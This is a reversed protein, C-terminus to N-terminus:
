WNKIWDRLTYELQDVDVRLDGGIDEHIDYRYPFDFGGAICYYCANVYDGFLELIKINDAHIVNILGAGHPAIVAEAEAFLRVQESLSYETLDVPEFDFKAATEIVESENLLNRRTAGRRTILIRHKNDPSVDVNSRIRNRVWKLAEPSPSYGWPPSDSEVHRPLSPIVYRDTVLQGGDWEIVHEMEVDMLRLSEEMWSPRERSVLITPYEGREKRYEEVGRLRPLYDAFWHYFGSSWLGVFSAVPGDIQTPSAIRIPVETNLVTKVITQLLHRSSGESEEIVYRGRSDMVLALTAVVSSASLECVFPQPDTLLRNKQTLEDPVPTPGEPVEPRYTSKTEYSTKWETARLLQSRDLSLRDHRFLRSLHTQAIDSTARLPSRQTTIDAFDM